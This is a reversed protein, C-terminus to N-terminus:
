WTPAACWAELRHLAARLEDASLVYPHAHLALEARPAPDAGGVAALVYAVPLSHAVVLVHDEPRGLLRRLATAYRAVIAQRSEGGGPPAHGSGNAAAWARYDDLAGGEFSGFRPDNLEPWVEFPVERGALALEATRRAREFESTVCLDIPESALQEGLVRAQEEGAPSLPGPSGPDGNVFGRLNHETEGHRVLLGRVM